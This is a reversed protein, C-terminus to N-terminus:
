HAKELVPQPAAAVFSKRAVGMHHMSEKIAKRALQRQEETKCYRSLLNKGFTVHYHEDRTIRAVYDRLQLPFRDLHFEMFGLAGCEAAINHAALREITTELRPYYEEMLFSWSPPVELQDPSMGYEPMFKLLWRYHKAEDRIQNALNALADMETTDKLWGGIFSVASREYYVAFNLWHKIMPAPLEGQVMPARSSPKENKGSQESLVEQLLQEGFDMSKM